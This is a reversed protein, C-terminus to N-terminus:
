EAPANADGGLRKLEARMLKTVRSKATYVASPTMNLRQAVESASLGERLILEFAEFNHSEVRERVAALALEVLEAQILKDIGTQRLEEDVWQELLADDVIERQLRRRSQLAFRRTVVFLWSRFKGKKLDYEFRPLEKWLKVHLDQRADEFDSNRVVRKLWVDIHSGYRVMFRDWTQPNQDELFEWLASGTPTSNWGM